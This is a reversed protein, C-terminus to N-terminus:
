ETVRAIEAYSGMGYTRRPLANEATFLYRKRRDWLGQSVLSPLPTVTSNLPPALGLRPKGVHFAPGSALGPLCGGALFKVGGREGERALWVTVSRYTRPGPIIRM